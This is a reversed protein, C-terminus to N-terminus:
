HPSGGGAGAGEMARRLEEMLEPPLEGGGPMGPMGEPMEMSPAETPAAAATQEFSAATPAIRDSLHRSIVYITEAGQRMAYHEGDSGSEGGLVVTETRTGDGDRVTLTVRAATDSFGAADAALDPAGFDSSRMRALTTVMSRVRSAGFNEITTIAAPPVAAVGADPDAAPLYSVEAIEWEGYTPGAPEEAEEGEAEADPPEAATVPRSFRFTGNPGRWAIEIVDDSELDLVGRDRWERLAKNFAFKISGRVTVVQDQGEVRVMTNASRTAGIWINALEGDAGSAVVHVGHAADVELEEHHSANNAAIGEVALEDLKDLATSVTSQDARAELPSVVWWGDERRELRVPEEDPRTIELSTIDDETVDPFNQPAEIEDSPTDGTNRSYAYMAGGGVVLLAIGGIWLRNKQWDM